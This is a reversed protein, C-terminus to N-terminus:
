KYQDYPNGYYGGYYEWFEDFDMGYMEEYTTDLQRRFDPDQLMRPLQAFLFVVTTITLILSVIGTSIGAISMGPMGAGKRSSLLAFLISLAALPISFIVTCCLLLSAIGCILSAIAFNNSPNRPTNNPSYDM